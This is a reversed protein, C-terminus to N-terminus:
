FCLETVKDDALSVTGFDRATQRKVFVEAKGGPVSHSAQFVTMDVLLWKKSRKSYRFLCNVEGGSYADGSTNDLEITGKGLGISSGEHTGGCGDCMLVGDRSLVLKLSGPADRSIIRLTKDESGETGVVLVYDQRGTEELDASSVYVPIEEGHVFPSLEAPVEVAHEPANQGVGSTDLHRGARIRELGSLPDEQPGDSAAVKAAPLVGVSLTVSLILGVVVASKM